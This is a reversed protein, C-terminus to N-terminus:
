SCRKYMVYFICNIDNVEIVMKDYIDHLSHYISEYTNLKYEIITLM